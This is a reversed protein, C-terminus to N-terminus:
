WHTRRYSLVTARGMQTRDGTPFIGQLLAHCGVGTKKGPSNGHVSSGPRSSDMPDCLTLCLQSVLCLVANGWYALVWSLSNSLFCCRLSALHCSDGFLHVSDKDEPGFQEWTYPMFSVAWHQSITLQTMPFAWGSDAKMHSLVNGIWRSSM